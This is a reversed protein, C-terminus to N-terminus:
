SAIDYKEKIYGIDHVCKFTKIVIVLETLSM